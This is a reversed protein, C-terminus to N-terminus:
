ILNIQVTEGEHVVLMPNVKRRNRGRGRPQVNPGTANGVRAPFYNSPQHDRQGVRASPPPLTPPPGADPAAPARRAAASTLTTAGLSSTRMGRSNSGVATCEVDADFEDKKVATGDRERRFMVM